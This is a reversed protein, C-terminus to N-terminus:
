AITVCDLVAAARRSTKHRSRQVLKRPLHWINFGIHSLFILAPQFVYISICKELLLFVKEDFIIWGNEPICM